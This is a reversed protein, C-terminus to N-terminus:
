SVVGLQRWRPLIDDLFLGAVNRIQIAAQADDVVQGHQYLKRGLKNMRQSLADAIGGQDSASSPDLWSDLLALEIEKVPIASGITPAALHNYSAGDCVARAITANLRHASDVGSPFLSRIGLTNSQLFLLVVQLIDDPTTRVAAALAPVTIPGGALVEIIPAIQAYPLQIQGYSALIGVDRGPEPPTVLVFQHQENSAVDQGGRSLQGRCFIDRRFGQAIAFDQLDQALEGSQQEVIPQRLPQPLVGPMLNDAITASGAFELGADRLAIAAQSHWLPQWHENLYEHVLYNINHSRLTQLRIGLAPLLQFGGANADRLREFLKISEEIVISGPKGTTDKLLRAIHQFPMSGLWGPQANYSVYVLSGPRTAATLCDIVAARVAPSVWSLIGHLVVYDFTGFDDPWGRALDTFDAEVFRVNTLGAKEALDRAHVIHEPNFDIGVFEAQSNASALLCLGFGQGCGLDLYRFSGGRRVPEYGATRVCLDLWDPAMERYFGFSYETSIEYGHSRDNM